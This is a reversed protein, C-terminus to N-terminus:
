RPWDPVQEVAGLAKLTLRQAETLGTIGTINLGEYPRTVRLVATCNGTAVDWLRLTADSDASALTCGDPSFAVACVQDSHGTLVRLRDGTQADWLCITRDYSGSAVLHGQPHYAVSWVTASHGELVQLCAGTHPDWRAIQGTQTATVLQTEDPSWAISDIQQGPNMLQKPHTWDDKPWIYVVQGSGGALHRGSPSWAVPWIHDADVTVTDLYDHELHWLKFSQDSSGSVLLNGAPHWAVSFIWGRHGPWTKLRDGAEIDWLVVTLDTSGSALLPRSPHWALCLVQGQHGRLTKICRRAAVDWLQITGDESAAALQTGDASWGIQWIRSQQSHLIKLCDGTEADWLRLSQDHSGSIVINHQRSWAIAPIGSTHGQLTKVCQGSALDWLRVVDHGLGLSNAALRQGDPSWALRTIPGHSNQLVSLCDTTPWGWLRITQDLSASALRDGSPSWAVDWIQGAHDSMVALCDGAVTWLRVTKDQSASALLEGCPHWAVATVWDTHGSLVTLPKGTQAQRIRVQHDAGGSALLTGDPSFAATWVWSQHDGYTAYNQGTALDWLRLTGETSTSALRQGDPSFAVAWVWDQHGTLTMVLRGSPFEWVRVCRGTDASALRTGDASLSLGLVGGFTDMFMSDLLQARAFNTGHLPMNQLYAHRITLGSFDFEAPDVSLLRLLNLLNGPGCDIGIFPTQRLRRLVGQLSQVLAAPTSYNQRLHDAIPALILREQTERLYDKVTTKVLAYRRWLNLQAPDDLDALSQILSDVLRLTVYEMVVPQETWRGGQREILSRQALSELAELLSSHPLSPGLDAQLTASDVWERNIALWIMLSRELPPLREFQQELLRRIGNFVMTEEALFAAIDGDFLTQISAAVIKLALPSHAYFECLQQRAQASGTLNRTGLLALAATRDGTLRRSRMRGDPGDLLSVETPQERSTLVVCSQHATEGLLRLLDGYDEYGPRYVEVRDGGQLITEVNDLIVLCRRTRLWHLLRPLSAQTDQQQSVFAVLDTLLTNLPPANRLSRWILADFQGQVAAGLKAALASKGIGGLGLLAILRCRDQVIWNTLLALEEARGYFASVDPAEGWDTRTSTEITLPLASATPAAVTNTVGFPEEAPPLDKSGPPSPQASAESLVQRANAKTVRGGYVDSLRRWFKPGVDRQLYNLSYGAVEAIHEYTRDGWAGRLLEIELDTLPRDCHAQMRASVAALVQEFDM